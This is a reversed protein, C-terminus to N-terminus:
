FKLPVISNLPWCPQVHGGFLYNHLGGNRVLGIKWDAKSRIHSACVHDQPPPFILYSLNVVQPGRTIHNRWRISSIKKFSLYRSWSVTFELNECCSTSEICAVLFVEHNLRVFLDDHTITVACSISIKHLVLLSINKRHLKRRWTNSCLSTCIQRGQSSVTKIFCM